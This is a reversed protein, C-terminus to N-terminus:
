SNVFRIRKRKKTTFDDLDEILADAAESYEAKAESFSEKAEALKKEAAEIQEKEFAYKDENM